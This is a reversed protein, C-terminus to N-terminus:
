FGGYVFNNSNVDLGYNGFVLVLLIIFLLLCIKKIISLKNLMIKIKSIKIEYIFVPILFILIVLYDFIKLGLNWINFSNIKFISIFMEISLFTHNYIFFIWLLSILIFTLPINIYKKKTKINIAVLIGNIIGWLIYHIGHWAGSIFFTFIINLKTKFNGERNGGLPIYIYDKLWTGLSIHWRQWFEKVSESRFPHNFNEALEVNFIKSIGLVMDIGGSFDCYLFISYIFCGFLVYWGTYTTNSALTSIIIGLKNAIIFKKILGVCIRLLGDFVKEKSFNIKNIKKIFSDCKNIPGIFLCPFYLSFLMFDLINNCPKYKNNHIDSIYSILGLSYYSIGLPVLLNLEMINILYKFFILPLLIFLFCGTILYFNKNKYILKGCFYAIISTLVIPLIYNGYIVYLLLNLLLIFIKKIRSKGKM